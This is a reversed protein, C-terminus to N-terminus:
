PLLTEQSFIFSFTALFNGQPIPIPLFPQRTASDITPISIVRGTGGAIGAFAHCDVCTLPGDQATPSGAQVYTEMTTNAIVRTTKDTAYLSPVINTPLAPQGAATNGGGVITQPVLQGATLAPPQPDAPWQVDILRYYQFVSNPAQQALVSWIWANAQNANAESPTTRGVQQPATYPTCGAPTNPATCATGPAKNVVCGYATDQAPVCAPNFYTYSALETRPTGTGTRPDSTNSSTLSYDPSNDIQEFTSWIMQSAGPLRRVIHLGVLGVTQTTTAGSPDTVQAQATLYRNANPSAAPLVLWAAKLEITGVGQGFTTPVGACNTDNSQAQASGAVPTTGGMPLTFGGRSGLPVALVCNLQNAARIMSGGSFGSTVFDVEDPNMRVDYYTLNGAQSTLWVPGSAQNIGSIQSKGFKSTAKLVLPPRNTIQAGSMVSFAPMYTQWVTTPVGGQTPTGFQSLAVSTDPLTSNAAAQWNLYM